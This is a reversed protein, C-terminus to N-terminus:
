LKSNEKMWIKLQISFVPAFTLCNKFYSVIKTLFTELTEFTDTLNSLGDTFSLAQTIANNIAIQM